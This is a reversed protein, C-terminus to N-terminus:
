LGQCVLDVAPWRDWSSPRRSVTPRTQAPINIHNEGMLPITYVCVVHTVTTYGPFPCHSPRFLPYVFM